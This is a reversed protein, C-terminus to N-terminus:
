KIRIKAFINLQADVIHIENLISFTLIAVPRQEHLNQVHVHLTLSKIM